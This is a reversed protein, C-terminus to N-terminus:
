YYFYMERNHNMINYNNNQLYMYIVLFTQNYILIFYNWVKNNIHFWNINDYINHRPYIGVGGGQCIKTMNVQIQILHTPNEETFYSIVDSTVYNYWSHGLKNDVTYDLPINSIMVLKEDYEKIDSNM